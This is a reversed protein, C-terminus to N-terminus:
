GEADRAMLEALTSEYFQVLFTLSQEGVPALPLRPDRNCLGALSLMEKVPVPNSEVFCASTIPDFARGMPKMPPTDGEPTLTFEEVVSWGSKQANLNDYWEKDIGLLFNEVGANYAM